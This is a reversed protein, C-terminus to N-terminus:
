RGRRIRLVGILRWEQAEEGFGDVSGVKDKIVLVEKRCHEVLFVKIGVTKEGEALSVM